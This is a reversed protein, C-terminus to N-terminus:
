NLWGCSMGEMGQASSTMVRGQYDPVVAVMSSGNQLLLTKKHKKLFDLDYGFSGTSFTEKNQDSSKKGGSNCAPMSLLGTLIIMIVVIHKM